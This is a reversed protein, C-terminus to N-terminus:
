LLYQLGNLYNNLTTAQARRPLENYTYSDGHLVLHYLHITDNQKQPRTALMFLIDPNSLTNFVITYDSVSLLNIDEDVIHFYNRILDVMSINMNGIIVNYM